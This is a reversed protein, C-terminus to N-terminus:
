DVSNDHSDIKQFEAAIGDALNAFSLDAGKWEWYKIATGVPSRIQRKNSYIIRCFM